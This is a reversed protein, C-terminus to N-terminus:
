CASLQNLMSNCEEQQPVDVNTRVHQRARQKILMSTKLSAPLANDQKLLNRISLDLRFAEEAIRFALGNVIREFEIKGLTSRCSLYQADAGVYSRLICPNDLMHFHRRHWISAQGHERRAFIWEDQKFREADQQSAMLRSSIWAGIFDNYSTESWHPKGDEGVWGFRFSKGGDIGYLATFPLETEQAIVLIHDRAGRHMYDQKSLVDLLAEDEMNSSAHESAYGLLATRGLGLTACSCFDIDWWCSIKILHFALENRLQRLAETGISHMCLIRVTRFRAIACNLASLWSQRPDRYAIQTALRSHELHWQATQEHNQMM